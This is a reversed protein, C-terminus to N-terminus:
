SKNGYRLGGKSVKLMTGLTGPFSTSIGQSTCVFYINIIPRLVSLRRYLARTESILYNFQVCQWLRTRHLGTALASSRWAPVGVPLGPEFGGGWVPIKKEKLNLLSASQRCKNLLLRQTLFSPFKVRTYTSLSLASQSISVIKTHPSDLM